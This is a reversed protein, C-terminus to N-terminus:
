PLLKITTDDLLIKLDHIYDNINNHYQNSFHDNIARELDKLIFNNKRKETLKVYYEGNGCIKFFKIYKSSYFNYYNVVRKKKTKQFHLKIYRILNNLKNM